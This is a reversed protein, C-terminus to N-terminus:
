EGKEQKDFVELQEQFFTLRSTVFTLKEKIKNLNTMTHSMQGETEVLTEAEHRLVRNFDYMLTEKLDKWASYHLQSQEKDTLAM